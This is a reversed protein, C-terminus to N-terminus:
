GGTPSSASLLQGVGDKLPCETHCTRQRRTAARPIAPDRVDPTSDFEVSRFSGGGNEMRRICVTQVIDRTASDISM